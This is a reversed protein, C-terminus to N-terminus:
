LSNLLTTATRWQKQDMKEQAQRIIAQKGEDNRYLETLARLRERAMEEKLQLAKELMIDELDPILKELYVVAREQAEIAKPDPQMLQKLEQQEQDTLLLKVDSEIFDDWIVTQLEDLFQERQEPTGDTVGLMEFINQEAIDEGAPTEAAPQPPQPAQQMPMPPQQDLMPASQDAMPPVPNQQFTDNM